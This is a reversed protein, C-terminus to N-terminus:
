RLNDLDERKLSELNIKDINGNDKRHYWESYLSNSFNILMGYPLHTLNMYNWLQRRHDSDVHAMAKLELIINDNVVLDMRYSQELKVDDWYMPLYVQREVKYGNQKLLYEMGAEYASELLGYGFKNHVKMALGSIDYFFQYQNM